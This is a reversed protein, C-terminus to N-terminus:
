SFAMNVYHYQKNEIFVQKSITKGSIKDVVTIEIDRSKEGFDLDIKLLTGSSYKSSVAMNGYEDGDIFIAADITNSTNNTLLLNVSASTTAMPLIVATIFLTVVMISVAVAAFAHRNVTKSTDIASRQEMGKQEMVPRQERTYENGSIEIRAGCGSCFHSGDKLKLGCNSCFNSM